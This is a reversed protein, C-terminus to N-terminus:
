IYKIKFVIKITVLVNLIQMQQVHPILQYRRISSFPRSSQWVFINLHSILM